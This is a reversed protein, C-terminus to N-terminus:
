PTAAQAAKKATEVAAAKAAADRISKALAEEAAKKGIAQVAPGAIYKNAMADAIQQMQKQAASQLVSKTTKSLWGENKQNLANVKKLAETRNNFFKLDEDSMHKGQGNKAAAKLRDYRAASTEAGGSPKSAASKVHDPSAAREKAAVKLEKSSRRVGWKMGKVGSMEADKPEVTQSALYDKSSM